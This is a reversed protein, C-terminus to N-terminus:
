SKDMEKYFSILKKEQEEWSFMTQIKFVNKKYKNLKQENHVLSNIKYGIEKFNINKIDIVEGIEYKKVVSSMFKLDSILMPKGSMIYDFFKNPASFDISKVEALALYILLDGSFCYEFLENQTLKGTFIVKDQVNYKNAIYKLEEIYNFKDGGAVLFVCDKVYPMSKIVLEIGRSPEVTGSFLIIKKKYDINYKKKIKKRIYNGNLMSEIISRTNYIVSAKNKLNYIHQLEYSIIDSVTILGDSYEVYEGRARVLLKTLEYKLEDKHWSKCIYDPFFEHSDCIFKAGDRKALIYGIPWTETDHCHYVDFSESVSNILDFHALLNKEVLVTTGLNYKFLRKVKIGEIKEESPLSEDIENKCIVTVDFGNKVLTKAEKFVRKDNTFNNDLLMAIKM